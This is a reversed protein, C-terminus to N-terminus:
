AKKCHRILVGAFGILNNRLERIGERDNNNRLAKVYNRLAALAIRQQLDLPLSYDNSM